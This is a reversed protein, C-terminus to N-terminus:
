DTRGKNLLFKWTETEKFEPNRICFSVLSDLDQKDDIDMSITPSYLSIPRQHCSEASDRHLKFSDPGYHFTFVKQTNLFLCNTGGRYTSPNIGIFNNGDYQARQEFDGAIRDFEAGTMLPIDAPLIVVRQGGRNRIAEVGLDIAANMGISGNEDVVLLGGQKAIAAVRTDATVVVVQSVEKSDALANLVDKLMAVTFEERDAGLCDKLRQKADSLSKVPVLAWLQVDRSASKHRQTSMSKSEINLAPGSM